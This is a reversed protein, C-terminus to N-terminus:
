SIGRNDQSAALAFLYAAFGDRFYNIELIAKRAVGISACISAGFDAWFVRRVCM